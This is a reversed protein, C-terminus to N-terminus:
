RDERRGDIKEMMMEARESCGCYSVREAKRALFRAWRVSYRVPLILWVAYGIWALLSPLM